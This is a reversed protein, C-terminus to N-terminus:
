QDKTQNCKVQTLVTGIEGRLLAIHDVLAAALAEKDNPPIKSLDPLPPYKYQEVETVTIGSCAKPDVRNLSRKFETVNALKRKERIMEETPSSTIITINTSPTIPACSGLLFLPIQLLQRAIKM